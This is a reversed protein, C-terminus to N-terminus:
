FFLAPRIHKERPPVIKEPQLQEAKTEVAAEERLPIAGPRACTRRNSFAVVGVVVFGFVIIGGGIVLVIKLKGSSKTVAEEGQQETSSVPLVSYDDQGRGDEFSLDADQVKEENSEPNGLIVDMKEDVVQDIIEWIQNLTKKLAM